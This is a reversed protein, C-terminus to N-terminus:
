KKLSPRIQSTSSVGVTSGGSNGGGGGRQQGRSVTAWGKGGGDAGGAHSSVFLWNSFVRLKLSIKLFNKM